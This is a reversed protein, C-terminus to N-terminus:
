NFHSNVMSNRLNEYAYGFFSALGSLFLCGKHTILWWLFFPPKKQIIISSSLGRSFYRHNPFWGIFITALSKWPIKERSTWLGNFSSTKMVSKKQKYPVGRFILM